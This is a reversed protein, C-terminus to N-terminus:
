FKQYIFPTYTKVAMMMIVALLILALATTEFVTGRGRLKTVVPFSGIAGALLAILAIPDVFAAVGDTVVTPHSMGFMTALFGFAQSLTDARFFVWSVMTVFLAYVHGVPRPLDRNGTLRELLLFLGQLSGWVIFTWNAGHWLGCLFFVLVLNFYVRWPACRSGGLPIYLYDRLWSSLTMHWRRWFERISTSVYPYNFNEPFTFGFMAGIGIAMDTYGSFDFYIQVTYCVVGLWALDPRLADGTLAFIKDAVGAVTNAILVKKGLGIIFRRVGTAFQETSSARQALQAGIDRFHVIPGAFFRSFFLFYNGVDFPHRVPQAEGRYLDVVYAIAVFTFFSIGPPSPIKPLPLALFDAYKCWILLLLNATVAVAVLCRTRQQAIALGMLYNFILAAVLVLITQRGAWFCFILSALLLVANRASPWRAPTLYYVALLLPLFLLLFTPENFQVATAACFVRCASHM